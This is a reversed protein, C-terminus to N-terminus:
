QNSLNMSGAGMDVTITLTPGSGPNTYTDGSKQWDDHASVNSLGGQFIVKASVGKPIIISLHSMGSDVQVNADRQLTGTFDLTYDGAGSRFIMKQFNANALGALKVTSAGTEYRLTDMETKNPEKFTFRTDAAGDSVELNKLALGGLEIDAQYAGANITLAMPFDGLKLNWENKLNKGFNPIGKLQMEGTELSISRGEQRIRPKLDNVNYVATGSVLEGSAGPTIKLVGASFGITLDADEGSPTAISIQEEQTPGTQITKVEPLSLGFRCATTVLVVVLLLVVLPKRNM